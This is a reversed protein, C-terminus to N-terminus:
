ALRQKKNQTENIIKEPKDSSNSYFVLSSIIHGNEPEYLTPVLLAGIYACIDDATIFLGGGRFAELIQSLDGITKFAFSNEINPKDKNKIIFESINRVSVNKFPENPDSWEFETEDLFHKIKGRVKYQELAVVPIDIDTVLKSKLDIVFPIPNRCFEKQNVTFKDGFEKKFVRHIYCKAKHNYVNLYSIPTKFLHYRHFHKDRRFSFELIKKGSYTEISYNQKFMSYHNLVEVKDNGCINQIKDIFSEIFNSISPDYISAITRILRLKLNSETKFSNNSITHLFPYFNYKSRVYDVYIKQFSNKKLFRQFIKVLNESKWNTFDFETNTEDIGSVLNKGKIKHHFEVINKCVKYKYSKQTVIRELSIGEFIYRYLGKSLEKDKLESYKESIRKWHKDLLKKAFKLYLQENGTRDFNSDYLMNREDKEGFDHIQDLVLFCEITMGIADSVKVILETGNDIFDDCTIGDKLDVIEEDIKRKKRNTQSNKYSKDDRKM